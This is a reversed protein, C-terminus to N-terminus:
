LLDDFLRVQDWATLCGSLRKPSGVGIREARIATWCGLGGVRVRYPVTGSVAGDYVDCTWSGDAEHPCPESAWGSRAEALPIAGLFWTTDLTLFGTFFMALRGKLLCIIAAPVLGV